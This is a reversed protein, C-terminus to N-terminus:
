RFGEFDDLRDRTFVRDPASHSVGGTASPPPSGGADLVARGEAVARLFALADEYRRRADEPPEAPHLRYFAIDCAATVLRPPVSPLPLDHVKGIWADIEADADALARAVVDADLLNDGDRDAIVLLQNRDFRDELDQQTAYSM